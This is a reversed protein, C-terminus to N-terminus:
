STISGARSTSQRDGTGTYIRWYVDEFVEGKRVAKNQYTPTDGFFLKRGGMGRHSEPYRMPLSKGRGM